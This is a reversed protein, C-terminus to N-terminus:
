ADDETCHGPKGPTSSSLLVAGYLETPGVARRPAGSGFAPPAEHRTSRSLGHIVAPMGPLRYRLIGSEDAGASDHDPLSTV